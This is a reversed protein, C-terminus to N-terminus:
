AGIMQNVRDVECCCFLETGANIVLACKGCSCWESPDVLNDRECPETEVEEDSSGTNYGDTTPEDDSEHSSVVHWPELDLYSAPVIDEVDNEVDRITTQLDNLSIGDTGDTEM